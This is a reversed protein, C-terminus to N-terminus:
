RCITAGDLSHFYVAALTLVPASLCEPVKLGPRSEVKLTKFGVNNGYSSVLIEDNPFCKVVMPEITKSEDHPFDYVTTVEEM